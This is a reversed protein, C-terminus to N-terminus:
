RHNMVFHIADTFGQAMREQTWTAIKARASGSLTSRLDADSLLRLMAGALAAANREPVVFGNEGDILLGGAAAGVATTGIVPVGQGFAENVVLGWPEKFLPTTVSPLVYVYAISYLKVTEHVPVHGIFRVRSAVGHQHAQRELLSQQSGDGAILLLASDDSQAVTCFADILYDLGKGEELRGIFLFVRDSPTVGYQDRIASRDEESVAASYMANDVANPATFIREAAVGESTLYDRVHTGYVVVADSHRYLYLTVPQMLRHATTGMRTWIGTWLIFPIRMIRAAAYATLVIIPNNICKIIVDYRGRLLLRFIELARQLFSGNGRPSYVTRFNGRSIGNSKQFYWETGASFFLFDVNHQQSLCEFTRVRYHTCLNTVFGIKKM